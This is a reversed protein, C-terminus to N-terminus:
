GADQPNHLLADIALQREDEPTAPNDLCERYHHAARAADGRAAFCHGLVLHAGGAYRSGSGAVELVSECHRRAEALNGDAYYLRGVQWHIQALFGLNRSLLPDNALLDLAARLFRLADAYHENEWEFTGFEWFVNPLTTPYRAAMMSTQEFLRRGSAYGDLRGTILALAKHAHVSMEGEPPTDAAEAYLTRAERLRGSAEYLAALRGLREPDRPGRGLMAELSAMAPALNPDSAPTPSALALYHQADVLLDHAEPGALRALSVCQQLEEVAEANRGLQLLLDGKLGHLAARTAVSEAKEIAEGCARLAEDVAGHRCLTDIRERVRDVDVAPM